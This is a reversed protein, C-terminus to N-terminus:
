EGLCAKVEFLRLITEESGIQYYKKASEAKRAVNGDRRHV